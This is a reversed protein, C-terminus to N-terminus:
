MACRGLFSIVHRNYVEIDELFPVHGCGGMVVMESNQLLSAAVEGIGIPAVGDEAGHLVLSPCSIKAIQERQDLTGLEGLAADGEPSEQMAIDFCRQKVSEDVDAAFAGEFYLGKLFASRDARLAAVSAEVDKATGGHPFGYAQTYRPTAGGTLILGKLRGGLKGAADVVLAGGLSWGNLIVSSLGLEDCLAVIDDGMAPISVDSFSKDSQGCCRQDYTVVSYGAATLAPVNHEWVTGAMGFGHVLMITPKSSEGHLKYFLQGEEIALYSM